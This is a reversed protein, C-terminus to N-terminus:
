EFSRSEPESWDRNENSWCFFPKKADESVLEFEGDVVRVLAVCDFQPGNTAPDEPTPAIHQRGFDLPSILGDATYDETGNVAAILKARDFNPGAEELGRYFMDAGIWGWMSIETLKSGTEEMWEKYTGLASGAVDGEFPRFTTAVIDGEFLDGAAKVFDHDYTNPHYMKVDAMGQRSLEQAITKMGNLDISAIIFDVGARKMATVEPAVGNPLGFPLQDNFYTVEAGGIDDSYKEISVRANQASKKSNESIGYGLVGAKTGDALKMALAQSRSPCNICISGNPKFITDRAGEVPHINWVAMPIGADAMTKWGSAFQTAGFAGFVDNASTIELARVENKGLEDDLEKSLVLKRGHIGGDDNRYAFYAKVGDVYCDLVCTGLPNNSNTGFAAFRIETDTVGPVGTLKVSAGGPETSDGGAEDDDDDSGCAAAVLALVILLVSLMRFRSGANKLTM